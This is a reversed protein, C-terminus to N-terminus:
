QGARAFQDGSGGTAHVQELDESVPDLELMAKDYEERAHENGTEIRQIGLGVLKALQSAGDVMEYVATPAGVAGALARIESIRNFVVLYQPYLEDLQGTVSDLLPPVPQAIQYLLDLNTEQPFQEGNSVPLSQPDPEAPLPATDAPPEIPIPDVAPEIPTSDTDTIEEPEPRFPEPEGWSFQPEPHDPRDQQGWDAAEWPAADSDRDQREDADPHDEPDPNAKRQQEDQWQRWGQAAGEVFGTGFNWLDRFFDAVAPYTGTIKENGRAMKDDFLRYWSKSATFADRGFEWPNRGVGPAEPKDGQRDQNIWERMNEYHQKRAARRAATRERLDRLKEEAEAARLRRREQLQEPSLRPQQALWDPRDWGSKAFAQEIGVALMMVVGGLPGGLLFGLATVGVAAKKEDSAPSGGSARPAPPRTDTTM